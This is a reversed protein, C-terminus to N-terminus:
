SSYGVCQLRGVTVGCSCVPMTNLSSMRHMAGSGRALLRRISVFIMLVTVASAAVVVGYLASASRGQGTSGCEEFPASCWVDVLGDAGAWTKAAGRM